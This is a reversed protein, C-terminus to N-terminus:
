IYDKHHSENHSIFSNGIEQDRPTKTRRVNYNDSGLTNIVPPLPAKSNLTPIISNM